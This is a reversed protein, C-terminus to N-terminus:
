MQHTRDLCVNGNVCPHIFILPSPPLHLTPSIIPNKVYFVLQKKEILELSKLQLVCVDTQDSSVWPSRWTVLTVAHPQAPVSDSPEHSQGGQRRVLYGELSDEEVELWNKGM